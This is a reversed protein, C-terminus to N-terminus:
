SLINQELYQYSKKISVFPDGPCEDQEVFFHQMGAEKAYAFIPKFDIIGNGVETFNHAPTDDMDKVHWLPYRGPYKKFLELPKYGAKTVWYIDMEMKVLDKDTEELLVTYPLQGQDEIFEFDHNHYCFQIGASKCTEGAKNFNAAIKKYQDIDGRELPDLYACVMFKVGLKQADEVAKEWHHLITGKSIDISSSAEGYSYHASPMTLGNDILLSKFVPIDLNYFKETGSYTTGEVEKYGITAVKAISATPDSDMADRVTYLQLGVKKTKRFSCAPAALLGASFLAATGIFKRRSVM